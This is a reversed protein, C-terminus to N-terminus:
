RFMLCELQGVDSAVSEMEDFEQSSTLLASPLPFFGRSSYQRFELPEPDPLEAPPFLTLAAVACLAAASKNSRGSMTSTHHKRLDLFFVFDM